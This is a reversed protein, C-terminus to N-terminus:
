EALKDMIARIEEEQEKVARVMEEHESVSSARLKEELLAMELIKKEREAAAAKLNDERKRTAEALEDRKRSLAALAVSAAGVRASLADHANKGEMAHRLRTQLDDNAVRLAATAEEFESVQTELKDVRPRNVDLEANLDDITNEYKRLNHAMETRERDLKERLSSCQKNAIDLKNTLSKIAKSKKALEAMTESSLSNQISPEDSAKQQIITYKEEMEKKDASNKKELRSIEAKLALIEAHYVAVKDKLGDYEMSSKEAKKRLAESEATVSSLKKNLAEV